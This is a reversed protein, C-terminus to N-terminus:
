EKGGKNSGTSGMHRGRALRAQAFVEMGASCQVSDFRVEPPATSSEMVAIITKYVDSALYRDLEPRSEWAEILAFANPDETDAYLRAGMCGPQVRTRALLAGVSKALERRKATPVVVRLTFTIM